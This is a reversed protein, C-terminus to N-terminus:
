LTISMMPVLGTDHSYAAVSATSLARALTSSMRTARTMSCSLGHVFGALDGEADLQLDGELHPRRV